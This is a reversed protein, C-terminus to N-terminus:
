IHILSLVRGLLDQLLGRQADDLPLPVAVPAGEGVSVLLPFLFPQKTEALAHPECTAPRFTVPLRLEGDELTAPLPASLVPELVVSRQLGTVEVPGSGAARTLVVEGTVTDDAAVLGQVSVPATSTVAEVACQEAHVDALVPGALPVRVQEM